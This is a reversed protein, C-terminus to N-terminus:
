LLTVEGVPELNGLQTGLQEDDLELGSNLAIWDQVPRPGLHQIAAVDSQHAWADLEDM